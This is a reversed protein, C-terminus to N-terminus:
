APGVSALQCGPIRCLVSSPYLIYTSTTYSPRRTRSRVTPTTPTESVKAQEKPEKGRVPSGRATKSPKYRTKNYRAIGHNALRGPLGERQQLSNSSSLIQSLPFTPLASQSSYLSFFQPQSTSYRLLTKVFNLIFSVSLGHFHKLHLFALLISLVDRM